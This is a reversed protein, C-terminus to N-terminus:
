VEFIGTVVDLDQVVMHEGEELLMPHPDLRHQAVVTPLEAAALVAM